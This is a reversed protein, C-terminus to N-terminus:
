IRGCAAMEAEMQSHSFVAALARCKGIIGCRNLRLSRGAGRMPFVLGAFEGLGFYEGAGCEYFSAAEGRLCASINKSAPRIGPFASFNM